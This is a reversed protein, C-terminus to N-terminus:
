WGASHGLLRDYERKVVAYCECVREELKPRDLVTIQGRHYHILGANQLHGAAETVGERRVGLMNAMLEQTMHLENSSLRDLSMLLWHCLQQEVKHHRNCVATQMIQTILAQAFRLTLHQLEGGLTFEETLFRAPLRWAHGASQVIAQYTPSIGGGMLLAIGVVGERGIIAIEASAGDELVCLLSVIGETPFYVHSITSGSEYISWGLPLAVPELHPLLRQYDATPLAALLHNNNPLRTTVASLRTKM